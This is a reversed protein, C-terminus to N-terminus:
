DGKEMELTVPADPDYVPKNEAELVLEIEGTPPTVQQTSPHREWCVVRDHGALDKFLSIEGETMHQTFLQQIAAGQDHGIEMLVARKARKLAQVILARYIDLGDTGGDLALRPEHDRVEPELSNLIPTAIYPPNSVVIDIPRHEPIPELLSGKLVAVRKSLDLSAVNAQACQLAADSVDTAYIKTQPREKAIALGVAGTGTGVDAVFMEDDIPLLALTREVLLETDPRPVLVDRHVALDITYFGKTGTIWAVPERNARRRVLPRLKALETEELPRNFEVYLQVRDLDLAHALLLEADLRASDIGKTTFLQETRKLIDVLTLVSPM